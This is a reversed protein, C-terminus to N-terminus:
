SIAESDSSQVCVLHTRCEEVFARPDDLTLYIDTVTRDIGLMIGVKTAEKLRIHVNTAPGIPIFSNKEEEGSLELNNVVEITETQEYLLTTRLQNGLRIWIGQVSVGIPNLKMARYDSILWIIMYVNGISLIWAFVSSWKAVFFHLILGELVLLKIIFLVMTLWGSEKHATFSKVDHQEFSRKGWSFLAYYYVALEYSLYSTVGRRGFLSTLRGHFAEMPHIRVPGTDYKEM